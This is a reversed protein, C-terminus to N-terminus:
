NFEVLGTKYVTVVRTAGTNSSSITITGDQATEGSLRRFVIDSGGGTLTVAIITDTGTLNYKVNTATGAVYATGVFTTLDTTGIHVGYQSANQSSLTRSRAERIIEVVKEANLDLEHRFQMERFGSIIISAVIGIISIVILVELLTYGKKFISIRM